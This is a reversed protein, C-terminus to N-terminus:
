LLLLTMGSFSRSLTSSVRWEACWPDDWIHFRAPVDKKQGPSQRFLSSQRALHGVQRMIAGNCALGGGYSGGTGSNRNWYTQLTKKWSFPDVYRTVTSRSVLQGSTRQM